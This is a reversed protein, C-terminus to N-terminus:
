GVLFLNYSLNLNYLKRYRKDSRRRRMLLTLILPHTPMLESLYTIDILWTISTEM